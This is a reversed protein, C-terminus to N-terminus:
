IKDYDFYEKINEKDWLIYFDKNLLKSILKVSILGVIRDGFGGILRNKQFSIVFM